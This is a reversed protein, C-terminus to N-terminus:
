PQLNLEFLTLMGFMWGNESFASRLGSARASIISTKASPLRQISMREGTVVIGGGSTRLVSVNRELRAALAGEPFEKSTPPLQLKRM